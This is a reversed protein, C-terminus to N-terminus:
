KRYTRRHKRSARRRRSKRSSNSNKKAPAAPPSTRQPPRSRPDKGNMYMYRERLAKMAPTENAPAEILSPPRSLPDKGNMAPAEIAPAEIEPSSSEARANEVVVEASSPKVSVKPVNWSWSGNPQEYYKRGPDSLKSIKYTRGLANVKPEGDASSDIMPNKGEKQMRKVNSPKLGSM